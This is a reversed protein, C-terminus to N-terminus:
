YGIFFSHTIHSFFVCSACFNVVDIPFSTFSSFSEFPDPYLVIYAGIKTQGFIHRTFIPFSGHFFYLHSVRAYTIRFGLLGFQRAVPPSLPTVM